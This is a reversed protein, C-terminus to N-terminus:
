TNEYVIQDGRIVVIADTYTKKLYSAMDTMAGTGPEEIKLEEISWDITKSIPAPKEAAPIPASPYIMRMHLYSWRNFPAKLLANAKTVQKDPPPPFGQMLGLEAATAYKNDQAAVSGTLAFSALGFALLLVPYTHTVLKNFQASRVIM